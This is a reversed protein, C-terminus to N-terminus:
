PVVPRRRTVSPPPDPSPVVGPPPALGPPMPELVDRSEAEIAAPPAGSVLERLGDRIARLKDPDRAALEALRGPDVQAGLVAVQSRMEAELHIHQPAMGDRRELLMTMARMSQELTPRAALEGEKARPDRGEVLDILYKGIKEETVNERLWMALNRRSARVAKNGGIGLPNAIEGKKFPM